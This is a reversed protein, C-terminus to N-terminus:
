QRQRLGVFQSNGDLIRESWGTSRLVIRIAHLRAPRRAPISRGTVGVNKSVTAGRVHQFGASIKAGDLNHKSMGVDLGSGAVQAVAVM